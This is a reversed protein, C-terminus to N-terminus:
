NERYAPPVASRLNPDIAVAANFEARAGAKDGRQDLLVGLRIHTTSAKSDITLIQRYLEIAGDVNSKELLIAKNYMAPTYNPDAAIAKDYDVIATNPDNKLQAIYGLNFWGFKNASDAAVLREFTAKADDYKGAMAQTLGQHLLDAPASSATASPKPQGSSSGSPGTCGGVTGVMAFGVMTVTLIRRYRPHRNM